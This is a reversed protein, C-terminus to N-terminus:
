AFDDISESDEKRQEQVLRWLTEKLDDLGQGSVSSIVLEHLADPSLHLWIGFVDKLHTFADLFM